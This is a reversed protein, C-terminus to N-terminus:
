SVNLRRAIQQASLPESLNDIMLLKARAIKDRVVGDSPKERRSRNLALGMLLSVAGCLVQQYCPDERGAVALAERYVDVALPSLRIRVAPSQGRFMARGLREM